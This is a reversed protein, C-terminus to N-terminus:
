KTLEIFGYKFAGFGGTILIRDGDLTGDCNIFTANRYTDGLQVIPLDIDDACYNGCDLLASPPMRESLPIFGPTDKAIPMWSAATSGNM